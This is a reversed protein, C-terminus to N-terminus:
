NLMFSVFERLQIDGLFPGVNFKHEMELIFGHMYLEYILHERHLDSEWVSELFEMYNKFQYPLQECVLTLQFYLYQEQLFIAYTTAHSRCALFEQTITLMQDKEEKLEEISKKHGELKKTLEKKKKRLREERGESDLLGQFAKEKVSKLARHHVHLPIMEKKLADYDSKWTQIEM